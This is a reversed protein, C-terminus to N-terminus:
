PPSKALRRVMLYIMVEYVLNKATEILAEYHRAM